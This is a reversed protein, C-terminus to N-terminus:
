RRRARRGARVARVAALLRVGIRRRLKRQEREAHRDHGRLDDPQERQAQGEQERKGPQGQAAGDFLWATLCLSRPEVEPVTGGAAKSFFVRRFGRQEDRHTETCRVGAGGRALAARRLSFTVGADDCPPLTPKTFASTLAWAAGPSTIVSMVTGAIPRSSTSIRTSLVPTHPVSRCM